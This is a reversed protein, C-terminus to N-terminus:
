SKECIVIFEKSNENLDKGLYDGIIKYNHFKSREILHELEYRFFYRLPFSWKESKQGDTDDWEFKFTVHILQKMIEPRSSAIRKVKKGPEYEGEFDTQNDLEKLLFNLDPIFVDFIFEGGPALHDFVNNIAKLQEEKDIIHMMVRFPAIILDFQFDFKFDVISQKSIRHHQTSNLNEKLVELMSPSVDIGYIDAGHTLADRFFRGTGTGVELTKGPSSKIESLFFEHDVKNRLQNYILDYFRTFFEPYQSTM